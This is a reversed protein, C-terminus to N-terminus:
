SGFSVMTLCNDPRKVLKLSVDVSSPLVKCGGLFCIIYISCQTQHMCRGLLSDLTCLGSPILQLVYVDNLGVIYMEHYKLGVARFCPFDVSAM